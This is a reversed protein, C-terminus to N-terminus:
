DPRRRAGARHDGVRGVVRLASARAPDLPLRGGAARPRLGSRVERGDRRLARRQAGAFVVVAAIAAILRTMTPGGPTSHYILDPRRARPPRDARRRGPRGAEAQRDVAADGLLRLGPEVLAQRGARLRAP